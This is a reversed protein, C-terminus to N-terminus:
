ITRQKQICSLSEICESLIVNSARHLLLAGAINFKCQKWKWKWAGHQNQSRTESGRVAYTNNESILM